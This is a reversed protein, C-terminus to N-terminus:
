TKWKRNLTLTVNLKLIAYPTSAWEDCEHQANLVQRLMVEQLVRTLWQNLSVYFLIKSNRWLILIASFSHNMRIWQSENLRLAWETSVTSHSNTSCKRKTMIYSRSRSRVLVKDLPKRVDIILKQLNTWYFMVKFIQRELKVSTTTVANDYRQRFCICYILFMWYQLSLAGIIYSWGFLALKCQLRSQKSM